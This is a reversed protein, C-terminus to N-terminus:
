SSAPNTDATTNTNEGPENVTPARSSSQMVFLFPVTHHNPAFAFPFSVFEHTVRFTASAHTAQKQPQKYKVTNNQVTSRASSLVLLTQMNTYRPKDDRHLYLSECYPM